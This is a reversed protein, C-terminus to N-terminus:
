LKIFWILAYVFLLISTYVSSYLFGNYYDTKGKKKYQLMFYIVLTNLILLFVGLINFVVKFSYLLSVVAGKVNTFDLCYAVIPEILFYFGVSVLVTTLLILFRTAM